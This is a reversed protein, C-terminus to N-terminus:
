NIKNKLFMITQESKLYKFPTKYNTSINQM